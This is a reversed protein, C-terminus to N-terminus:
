KYVDYSEIRTDFCMYLNNLMEVVQLPTCSAAITTFGVIDSFYITVQEYSEAEVHKRRRLQKAVSKPLMQHLLDEALHRQRKLEETREKLGLAYNQIWETMQKFSVLVIPYILCATSLLTIRFSVASLIDRSKRRMSETSIHVLCDQVISIHHLMADRQSTQPVLDTFLRFQCVGEYDAFHLSLNMNNRCCRQMNESLFLAHNLRTIIQHWATPPDGPGGRQSSATLQSKYLIFVTEKARLVMRLSLVDAWDQNSRALSLDREPGELSSLLNSITSTILNDGTEEDLPWRASETSGNVFQSCPIEAKLCGSLRKMDLALEKCTAQIRSLTVLSNNSRWWVSAREKQLWDILELLLLNRCSAVAQLANETERWTELSSNLDLSISGLLAALSLLCAAGIRRVTRSGGAEPPAVCRPDQRTQRLAM